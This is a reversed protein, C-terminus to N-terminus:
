GSGLISGVIKNLAAEAEQLDEAVECWEDNYSAPITNSEAADRIRTSFSLYNKSALQFRRDAYLFEKKLNGDINENM